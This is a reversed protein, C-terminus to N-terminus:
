LIRKGENGQLNIIATDLNEFELKIVIAQSSLRNVPIGSIHCVKVMSERNGNFRSPMLDMSVSLPTGDNLVIATKPLTEIESIYFGTADPSQPFHLYLTNENKTTLIGKKSAWEYKVPKAHLAEKVNKYWAGVQTFIEKSVEPIKGKSDPGVNLVYNAGMAMYRDISSTLYLNSHYDENKRYGWSEKGISDCAETLGDFSAGDASMREPTSFDGEDYGRNNILIGPQLSRILENLSKDRTKPPIDWFFSQIKGYGTLLERLQNKVYEIYLPENAEPTEEATKVEHHGTTNPYNPNHWDPVSYYLSLAIGEEECAEALMKLVDKGYPTNTIKYDTYETDWMCFGDHHKTTFTIYDVGCEKALKVWEKPNYETPNFVKMYQEYKEGEVFFRWMEQEHLGGVSYLGWHIFMGFRKSKFM